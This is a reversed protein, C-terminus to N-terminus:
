TANPDLGFLDCFARWRQQNCVRGFREVGGNEVYVRRRNIRSQEWDLLAFVFKRERSGGRGQSEGENAGLSIEFCVKNELSSGNGHFTDLHMGVPHCVITYKNMCTYMRM